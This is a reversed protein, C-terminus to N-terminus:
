FRENKLFSPNIKKLHKILKQYYDIKKCYYDINLSYGEMLINENNNFM